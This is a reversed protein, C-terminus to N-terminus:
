SEQKYVSRMQANHDYQQQNRKAEIAFAICDRIGAEGSSLNPQDNLLLLVKATDSYKELEDISITYFMGDSSSRYGVFPSIAHMVAPYSLFDNALLEKIKKPDGITTWMLRIVREDIHNILKGQAQLLEIRDLCLNKLEEYDSDLLLQSIAANRVRSAHESSLISVPLVIVSEEQKFIKLLIASRSEKSTVRDCFFRVCRHIQTSLSFHIKTISPSRVGSQSDDAFEAALTMAAIYNEQQALDAVEFSSEIIELFSRLRGLDFLKRLENVAVDKTVLSETFAMLDSKSFESPDSYLNFYREFCDPHALRFQLKAERLEDRKYDSDQQYSNYHWGLHRGIFEKALPKHRDSMFKILHQDFWDEPLKQEVRIYPNANECLIEEKQQYIAHYFDPEFLRLAELTILDDLHVSAKGKGKECHM